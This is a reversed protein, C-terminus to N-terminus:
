ARSGTTASASFELFGFKKLLHDMHITRTVSQFGHDSIFLVLDDPRTRSVFSGIADDLQAYVDRRRPLPRPARRSTCTSDASTTPSRDRSRMARSRSCTTSTSPGSASSTLRVSGILRADLWGSQLRRLRGYDHGRLVLLESGTAADFLRVTGDPMSAAIRTGDPSFAVKNAATGALAALRTGSEVDWVEAPGDRRATVLRGGEPAFAFDRGGVGHITSVVADLELDWITIHPELGAVEGTPRAAVAVSRGDPSFLAGLVEYGDDERLVRIERGARDVIRVWGHLSAMLLQTGDPSWDVLSVLEDGPVAFLQEGSAVDWVGAKGDGSM